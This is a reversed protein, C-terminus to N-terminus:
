MTFSSVQSYTDVTNVWIEHFLSWSVEATPAKLFYALHTYLNSVRKVLKQRFLNTPNELTTVGNTRANHVVYKVVIAPFITRCERFWMM